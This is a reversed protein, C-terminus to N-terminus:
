DAMILYFYSGINKETLHLRDLRSLPPLLATRGVSKILQLAVALLKIIERAFIIKGAFRAPIVATFNIRTISLECLNLLYVTQSRM